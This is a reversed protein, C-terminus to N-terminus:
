VTEDTKGTGGYIIVSSEERCSNGCGFANIVPAELLFALPALVPELSFLVHVLSM